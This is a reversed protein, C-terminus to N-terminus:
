EECAECGSSVDIVEGPEEEIDELSAKTLIRDANFKELAETKSSAVVIYISCNHPGTTIRFNM